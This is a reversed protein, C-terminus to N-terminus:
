MLEMLERLLKEYKPHRLKKIARAECQQIGQRSTIGIIDKIEDFTKEEGYFGFRYMIIEYEKDNLVEKLIKRLRDRLDNTEIIEEISESDDAILDGIESKAESDSDVTTNLSISNDVYPMLEDLTKLDYGTQEQIYEIRDSQINENDYRNIAQKIKILKENTHVPIRINAESDTIYRGISQRIWNYAYTAVSAGNRFDYMNAAKLLGMVGAQFADESDAYYPYRDKLIKIVLKGNGIIFKNAAEKDGNQIKEVLELNEEKTLTEAKLCIKKLQYGVITDM